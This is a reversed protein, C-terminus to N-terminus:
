IYFRYNATLESIERGIKRHLPNIFYYPTPFPLLLYDQNATNYNWNIETTPADQERSRPLLISGSGLM